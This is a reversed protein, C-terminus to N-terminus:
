PTATPPPPVPTATPPPPPPPPPPTATAPPPPPATPPPLPTETPPVQTATLTPTSTPTETSTETPASTATTTITPTQGAEDGDFAGGVCLASLAIIVVLLVAGLGILLPGRNGHGFFERFGYGLGGGAAAFPDGPPPAAGASGGRIADQLRALVIEPWGAPPPVLALTALVEGFGPYRRSTTQCSECSQLHRMIRRELSSSWEDDGILFDLDLCEQRGRTLLLLGRYSQEQQERVRGLKSRVPEPKTRLVTSIDDVDLQQRLNLDLLEYEDPKLERASQWAIHALAPLDAAMATHPLLGADGVAFAEEGEVVDPRGRGLRQTLDHHVLAFLQLSVAAQFQGARMGQYAQLLSMQVAAAAVDRDRTLRIAFDYLRGFFRGYLETFAEDDGASAQRALEEDDREEGEM